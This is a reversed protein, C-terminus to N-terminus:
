AETAVDFRRTLMETLWESSVPSYIDGIVRGYVGREFEESYLVFPFRSDSVIRQTGAIWAEVVQTQETGREYEASSEDVGYTEATDVGALRVREITQIDFGCDLRVDMTDGDVM